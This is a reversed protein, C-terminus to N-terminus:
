PQCVKMFAIAVCCVAACVFSGQHYFYLIINSYFHVAPTLKLIVHHDGDM